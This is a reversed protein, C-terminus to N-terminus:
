TSYQTLMNARSEPVRIIATIDEGFFSVSVRHFCSDGVAPFSWSYEHHMIFSKM